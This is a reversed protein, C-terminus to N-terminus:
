ADVSLDYVIHYSQEQHPRLLIDGFEPHHVADPLTQPELAVAMFPKLDTGGNVNEPGAITNLTYMILGNRDSYLDVHRGNNINKLTAILSGSVRFPHDYGPFGDKRVSEIMKDLPRSRQFDFSTNEVPLLKGTPVLDGGLEAVRDAHIELQHNALGRTKDQNLNFYSHVTPNFLSTEDSDDFGKFEIHFQHNEGWRYVVSTKLIGPFGDEEPKIGRSFEIGNKTIGANWWAHHFGNAGGHLTNMGENQPLRYQRGNLRYSGDKIRGGARGIAKGFFYTQDRYLSAPDTFQLLINSCDGSKDPMILSTLAAGYNICSFAYGDGNDATYKTFNGAESKVVEQTIVTVM